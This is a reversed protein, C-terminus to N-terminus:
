LNYYKEVIGQIGKSMDYCSRKICGHVYDDYIQTLVDRISTPDSVNAFYSIENNLFMDHLVGDDPSITFVPLGLSIFDGVKTPLFIGEKVPAELIIAIDYKNMEDMCRNYEMPSLFEIINTLNNENVYNKLSNPVVGIFSLHVNKIRENNILSELSQILPLGNRYKGLNGAHVMRLIGDSKDNKKSSRPIITHPIIISKRSDVRLYLQMYRALRENPFIHVDAERMKSISIRDSYSGKDEHGKGYPFPYFNTPYPDNWSAVWKIGYKKKIYWGLLFSPSNKTIVYDYDRICILHKACKMAEYAWHCGKFAVGFLLLTGINQFITKITVRNDVEVVNLSRLTVQYSDLNNSPYSINKSKKSILDIEFRNSSTLARLLNINVIEEAGIVPYSSPAIM